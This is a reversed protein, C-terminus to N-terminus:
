QLLQLPILKRYQIHAVEDTELQVYLAHITVNSSGVLADKKERQQNERWYYKLGINRNERKGESM